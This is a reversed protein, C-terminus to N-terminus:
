AAAASSPLDLIFSNLLMGRREEAVMVQSSVPLSHIFATLNSFYFRSMDHQGLDYALKGLNNLLGSLLRSVELCMHSHLSSAIQFSMKYLKLAKQQNRGMHSPFELSLLHYSLATNFLIIACKIEYNNSVSGLMPIAKTFVFDDALFRHEHLRAETKSVLMEHESQNLSQLALKVRNDNNLVHQLGGSDLNGYMLMQLSGQFMKLSERLRGGQHHQVGLNNSDIALRMIM